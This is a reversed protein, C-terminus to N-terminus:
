MAEKIQRFLLEAIQPVISKGFGALGVERSIGDVMEFIGSEPDYELLRKLERPKM